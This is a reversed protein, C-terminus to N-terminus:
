SWFADFAYLDDTYAHIESIRANTLTFVFARDFTAQVGGRIASQQAVAHAHAGAALWILVDHRLTGGSLARLTGDVALVEDPGTHLGAVPSRGAVTWSVEDTLLERAAAGEGADLAALFRRIVGVNPADPADAPMPEEALRMGGTPFPIGSGLAASEPAACERHSM